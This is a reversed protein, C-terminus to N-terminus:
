QTNNANNVGRFLGNFGELSFNNPDPNQAALKSKQEREVELQSQEEDYDADPM